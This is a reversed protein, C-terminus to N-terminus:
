RAGVGVTRSGAVRHRREEREAVDDRGRRATGDVGRDLAGPRPCGPLEGRQAAPEGRLARSPDHPLPLVGPLERDRGELQGRRRLRPRGGGSLREPEYPDVLADLGALHETWPGSHRRKGSAAVFVLGHREETPLASSATRRPRRVHDVRRLAPRSAALRRPSVVVLPVSVRRRAPEPVGWLRAVRPGPTSLHQRLRSDGPGRGAGPVGRGRGGVRGASRRGASVDESRGVCTWGGRFFHRQEWDFVAQDVYAARPLLRSEGFPRLAAALGAAPVPAVEGADVM